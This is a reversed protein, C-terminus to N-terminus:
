HPTNILANAVILVVVIVLLLIIWYFLPFSASFGRQKGGAKSEIDEEIMRAPPKIEMM